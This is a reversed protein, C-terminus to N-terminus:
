ESRKGLRTADRGDPLAGERLDLASRAPPQRDRTGRALSRRAASHQREQPLGRLRDRRLVRRAHRRGADSHQRAGLAM